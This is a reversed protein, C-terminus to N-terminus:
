GVRARRSAERFEMMGDEEYKQRQREKEAEEDHLRDMFALEEADLPRNKGTKMMKWKGQFEAEKREKAERLM